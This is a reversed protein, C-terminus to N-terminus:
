AHPLAARTRSRLSLVEVTCQFTELPRSTRRAVAARLHAQDHDIGPQLARFKFFFTGGGGGVVGPKVPTAVYEPEAM